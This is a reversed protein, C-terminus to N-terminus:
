IKHLRKAIENYILDSSTEIFKKIDKINFLYEKDWTSNIIMLGAKEIIVNTKDYPYEKIYEPIYINKEEYFIKLDLNYNEIVQINLNTFDSYILNGIEENTFKRNINNKDKIWDKKAEKIFYKFWFYDTYLHIYYGMTFPDKLYKGYSEEFRDMHPYNDEPDQFHTEYKM